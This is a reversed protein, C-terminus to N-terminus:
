VKQKKAADNLIPLPQKHASSRRKGSVTQRPELFVGASPHTSAEKKNQNLEDITLLKLIYDWCSRSQLSQKVNSAINGFFIRIEAPRFEAILRLKTKFQVHFSM